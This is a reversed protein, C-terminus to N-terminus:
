GQGLLGYAFEDIAKQSVSTNNLLVLTTRDDFRHALLSRYGATRGTEWAFVRPMGDVFLTKVRGGLAYDQQPWALTLMQRRGADTLVKGDFVQHAASLLDGATSVFGGSAAMFPLRPEMQRVLPSVTRYGIALDAPDAPATHGLGLPRTVLEDMAQAYAKGTVAEIIATIIIWNTLAYDFATGPEFALDGSCWLKVAEATGMGKSIAAQLLGPDAKAAAIFGNPIGSTNSILRRLSVKAGTDARYDALYRTIPADLDLKGAQALRLLATSTLWKSISAIAYPTELSAARGVEIEALGIARSWLPKGARGLLVVGQFGQAKAFADIANGRAAGTLAGAAAGGALAAAAGLTLGGAVFDRRLM